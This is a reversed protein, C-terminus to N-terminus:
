DADSSSSGYLAETMTMTDEGTFPIAKPAGDIDLMLPKAIHKPILMFASTVDQRAASLGCLRLQSEHQVYDTFWRGARIDFREVNSSAHGYNITCGGSAYLCGDLGFAATLYGRATPMPPFSTDWAGSRYDYRELSGLMASGDASGGVVYLAGDPGFSAGPGTRPSCMTATVENWQACLGGGAGSLPLREITNHYAM